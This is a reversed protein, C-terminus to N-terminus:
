PAASYYVGIVIFEIIYHAALAVDLYVVAFVNCFFSLKKKQGAVARLSIMVYRVVGYALIPDM